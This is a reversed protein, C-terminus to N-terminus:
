WAYDNVGAGGFMDDAGQGAIFHDLNLFSDGGILIDGNLPGAILTNTGGATSAEIINPGTGGILTETKPRNVQSPGGLIFNAGSGGVLQDTGQGGELFSTGGGAQLVNKSNAFDPDFM